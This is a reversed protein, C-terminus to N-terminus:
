TYFFNEPTHDSSDGGNWPCAFSCDMNRNKKGAGGDWGGVSCSGDDSAWVAGGLTFLLPDGNKGPEIGLLNDIKSTMQLPASKRSLFGIKNTRATDWMTVEVSYSVSTGPPPDFPSGGGSDNDEWEQIHMTCQGIDNYPPTDGSVDPFANFKAGAVDPNIQACDDIELRDGDRPPTGGPPQNGRYNHEDILRFDFESVALGIDSPRVEVIRTVMRAQLIAPYEHTVWISDAWIEQPEEEIVLWVTGFCLRAYEASTLRFWDRLHGGLEASLM